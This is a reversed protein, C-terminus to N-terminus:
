KKKGGANSFKAPFQAAIGNSLTDAMMLIHSMAEDYDKLSAAYNGKLQNTAENLTQDLHAFMSSEIAATPWNKPNAGNLFKAIDTANERWRKNESTVKANDGTKAATVINAAILIHDKLLATLKNGAERGYFEAVSNGIDTQNQLLRQTTADKDASGAAASVIFLRTYAVHDSWLRRMTDHLSSKSHAYAVNPILVLIATVLALRSKNLMASGGKIKDELTENV